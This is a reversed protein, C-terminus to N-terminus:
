LSFARKWSFQTVSYHFLPTNSYLKKGMVGGSWYEMIGLGDIILVFM